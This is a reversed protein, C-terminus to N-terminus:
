VLILEHQLKDRKTRLYCTNHKNVKASSEIRRTVQVGRESLARLKDPNNTILAVSRIGLANVIAAAAGYDRADVPLGLDENAQVTDRGGQQLAYARIKNALGIGRGEHGRMYVVVGRGTEAILELAAQLQEGCDCRCSGFVDGTLCESHVRVPVDQRGQVTGRVMVAHETGAGDVYVHMDFDGHATPMRACACHTVAAGIPPPMTTM